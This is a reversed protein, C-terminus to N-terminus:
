HDDVADILAMKKRRATAAAKALVSTTAGLATGLPVALWPSIAREGPLLLLLGGVLCATGALGYHIARSRGLIATFLLASLALLIIGPTSPRQQALLWSGTLLLTGGCAGAWVGGPACFERYALLLGISAVILLLNPDLLIFIERNGTPRPLL